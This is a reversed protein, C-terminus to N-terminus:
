LVKLPNKNKFREYLKEVIQEQHLMIESRIIPNTNKIFITNGKINIVGPDVSIKLLEKLVIRVHEKLTFDKPLLNTFKKLYLAISEM